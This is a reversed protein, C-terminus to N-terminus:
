LLWLYNITNRYTVWVISFLSPQFFFDISKLLLDFLKLGLTASTFRWILHYIFFIRRDRLTVFGLVGITVTCILIFTQHHLHTLDSRTSTDIRTFNYIFYLTFFSHHFSHIWEETQRRTIFYTTMVQEHRLQGMINKYKQKLRKKQTLFVKEQDKRQEELRSM